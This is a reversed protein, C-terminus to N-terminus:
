TFTGDNITDTWKPPEQNPRFVKVKNSISLTYLLSAKTHNQVLTLKLHDLVSATLIPLVISCLDQM